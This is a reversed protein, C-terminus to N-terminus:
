YVILHEIWKYPRTNINLSSQTTEPRRVGTSKPSFFANIWGIFALNISFWLGLGIIIERTSISVQHLQKLDEFGPQNLRCSSM